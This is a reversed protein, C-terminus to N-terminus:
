LIIQDSGKEGFMRIQIMDTGEIRWDDVKDLFLCGRIDDQGGFLNNYATFYKGNYRILAIYELLERLGQEAYERNNTYKVEGLFTSELKNDRLSYKELVIDPRGGWVTQNGNTMQNFEKFVKLERGFYNDTKDALVKELENIVEKFGFDRSGTCDHYIIYEHDDSKWKAVINKGPEILQLKVHGYQKIIKLTWYLEFLVETRDPGIFTNTLLERAEEPNLEFNMLRRYESLLLAAERYLPVRSNIARGIVRDTIKNNSLDIRKLYVNRLYLQKLANRLQKKDIWQNLWPYEADFAGKLDTEVIGHIIGLLEKLVLNEPIAYNRQRLDCVYTTTDKPNRNFRAELTDKWRIRGKVEGNLTETKQKVTTKIRRMRQPLEEIFDIVGVERNTHQQKKTLVFHIRLLKEINDINLNPEIKETFSGIDMFEGKMLYQSFDNAVEALLQESTTKM